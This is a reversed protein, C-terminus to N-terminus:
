EPFFSSINPLQRLIFFLELQKKKKKRKKLELMILIKFVIIM